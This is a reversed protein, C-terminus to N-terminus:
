EAVATVKYFYKEGQAQSDAFTTDPTSGILNETGPTFYPIDSRYINYSTAFASGSWALTIENPMYEIEVNEPPLITLTVALNGSGPVSFTAINNIYSVTLPDGNFTIEPANPTGIYLSIETEVLSGIYGEWEIGERVLSFIIEEDSFFYEVGDFTLTNGDKLFFKSPVGGSFDCFLIGANSAVTPLGTVSEELTYNNGNTCTISLSSDIKFAAGEPFAIDEMPPESAGVELPQLLTLFDVDDGYAQVDQTNHTLVQEWAFSHTDVPASYTLSETSRVASFLKADDRSWLTRFNTQEFNGGSTEGGNGHLRWNYTRNNSSELRDRIIFYEKDVFLVSRVIDANQYNASVECYQLNGLDHFSTLYADVDGAASSTPSPPGQGDVLILNHNKAKNVYTRHNWSVYGADLGLYEDYAYLLFSTADPHDHGQGNVRAAGHEGIMFLYIDEAGWGSRFVMNGAEPMFVTPEIDPEQAPLTDDYYSIADPIWYNDAYLNSGEPISQFDWQYIESNNTSIPAFWHSFFYHLHSDEYNPRRSDPMRIKWSWDHSAQVITENILDAGTVYHHFPILYPLYVQASYMFYYPGEAWAGDGVCQYDQFIGRVETEAHDHWYEAFFNDPLTLAATGLAAFYRIRWNNTYLYTILWNYHFEDAKYGISERIYTENGGFPYNAGKLMDYTECYFTLPDAHAYYNNSGGWNGNVDILSLGELAKEAYQEDETLIYAFALMKSYRSKHLETAGSFNYNIIWSLMNQMTQWWNSYPPREIRARLTDVMDADYLIIPHFEDPLQSANTLQSTTLLLLTTLLILAILTHTKEALIM